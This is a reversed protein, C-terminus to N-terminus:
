EDLLLLKKLRTQHTNSKIHKSSYKLNCKRNCLDCKIKTTRIKSKDAVLKYKLILDHKLQNAKIMFPDKSNM